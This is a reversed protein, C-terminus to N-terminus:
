LGATDRAIRAAEAIVSADGIHNALLFIMRANVKVSAEDDLGEHMEVLTQYIEDASTTNPELKLAM